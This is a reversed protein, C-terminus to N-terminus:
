IMRKVVLIRLFDGVEEASNSVASIENILDRLLIKQFGEIENSDFLKVIATSQIKDIESEYTDIEGVIELIEKFNGFLLKVATFTVDVCRITVDSLSKFEEELFPPLFVKQEYIMKVSAEVQNPINDLKELLGLIDGRSEPFLSRSFLLYEVDRRIDDAQSELHHVELTRERLKECHTAGICRVIVEMGKRLCESSKTLYLDIRDEIIRQAKFLM